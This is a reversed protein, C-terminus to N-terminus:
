RQHINSLVVEIDPWSYPSPTAYPNNADPWGVFRATSYESKFYSPYLLIVPIQEVMIRELGFIAARQEDDNTAERYQQLLADTAPDNWRIWNSAAAQGAPATFRSDLMPSYIGFPSAGSGGGNLAMDFTGYQLQSFYELYSIQQVKIAIGVASLQSAIIKAAKVWDTWGEVIDINFELRDGNANVLVGDNGPAYGADALLAKAQQIDQHFTLGAYKPDLYSQFNPLVIGTPHAVPVYGSQSQNVIEDRDIALSIAQRVAVSQFPKRTLNLDIVTPSSLPFWYHNNVPDFAVYSKQITEVYVGAWDVTGQALIVSLTSNSSYAPFRAEDIFPKGPQWYSPNRKMVELDPSYSGLVFPGTGVPHTFTATGPDSVDKWIHQPVMYIRTGVVELMSLSPATFTLVVTYPDPANIKQLQEWIEFKDLKPFRHLLDFTFLVDTSTFPQGDTWTVQKRINFTLTKADTSWTYKEALWPTAQGNLLNTYILPEYILGQVGFCNENIAYFPNFSCNFQGNPSPVVTVSGGYKIAQKKTAASSCASLLLISIVTITSLAIMMRHINTAIMKM